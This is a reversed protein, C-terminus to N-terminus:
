ESRHNLLLYFSVQAMLLAARGVGPPRTSRPGATTPAPCAKLGDLFGTVGVFSNWLDAFRYAGETIPKASQKETAFLISQGPGPRPCDRAGRHQGHRIIYNM